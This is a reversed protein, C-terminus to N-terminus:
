FFALCCVTFLVFWKADGPSCEYAPQRMVVFAKDEMVEDNLLGAGLLGWAIAILAFAAVLAFFRCKSENLPRM